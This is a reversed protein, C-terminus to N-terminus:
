AIASLLETCASECRRCAEACVQCHDHMGAHSECEAGCVRCAQACAELAARTITADYGTQRSLIRGTVDCVDACNLDLTICRRLEAIMDEGLCADACATCTQACEFCADICRALADADLDPSSPTTRLMTAANTV